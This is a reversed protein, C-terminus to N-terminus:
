SGNQRTRWKTFQYVQQLSVNFKDAIEKNSVVENHLKMIEAENDVLIQNKPLEKQRVTVVRKIDFWLEIHKRIAYEPVKLEYVMTKMPANQEIFDKIRDNFQHM